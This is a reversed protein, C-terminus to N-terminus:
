TLASTRGGAWPKEFPARSGVFRDPPLSCLDESPLKAIAKVLIAFSLHCSILYEGTSSLNTTKMIVDYVERTANPSANKRSREQIIRCMSAKNKIQRM